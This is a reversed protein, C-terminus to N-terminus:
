KSDEKEALVPKREYPVPIPVTILPTFSSNIEVCIEPGDGSKSHRTRVYVASKGDPMTVAVTRDDCGLLLMTVITAKPLKSRRWYRILKVPGIGLWSVGWLVGGIVAVPPFVPWMFAWLMNEHFRGKLEAQVGVAIVSVIVYGAFILGAILDPSM